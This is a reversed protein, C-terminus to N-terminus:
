NGKSGLLAQKIAYVVLRLPSRTWQQDSKSDFGIKKIPRNSIIFGSNKILKRCKIIHLFSQAVPIVEGIGQKELLVKAAIMVDESDSYENPLREVSLSVPYNM